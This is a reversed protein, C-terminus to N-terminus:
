MTMKTSLKREPRHNRKRTLRRSLIGINNRVTNRCPKYQELKRLKNTLREARRYHYKVLAEVLAQEVKKRISGIESKFRRRLEEDPTSVNSIHELHTLEKHQQFSEESLNKSEKRRWTSRPLAPIPLFPPIRWPATWPAHCIKRNWDRESVFSILFQRRGEQNLFVHM